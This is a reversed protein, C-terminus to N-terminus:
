ADHDIRRHIWHAGRASGAISKRMMTWCVHFSKRGTIVQYSYNTGNWLWVIRMVEEERRSSGCLGKLSFSAYNTAGNLGRIVLFTISFVHQNTSRM